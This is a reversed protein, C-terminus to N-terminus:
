FLGACHLLYTIDINNSSIAVPEYTRRHRMRSLKLKVTKHVMRLYYDQASPWTKGLACQRSISKYNEEQV